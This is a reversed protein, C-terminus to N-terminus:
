GVACRGSTAMPKAYIVDEEAPKHQALHGKELDLNSSYFPSPALRPETTSLWGLDPSYRLTLPQQGVPDDSAVLAEFTITATQGPELYAGWCRKGLTTSHLLLGKHEGELPPVDTRCIWSNAGEEVKLGEIIVKERLDRPVEMSWGDQEFPLHLMALNRQPDKNTVQLTIIYRKRGAEEKGQFDFHRRIGPRAWEM